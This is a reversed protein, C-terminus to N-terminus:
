GNEALMRRYEKEPVPRSYYYGQALTCGWELLKKAQYEEEVGEALIEMGLTKSLSITSKIVAEIRENGIGDIFSKDLKIADFDNAVLATHGSFGAGYDDIDVQCGLKHLSEVIDKLSISEDSLASEPIEFSLKSTDAASATLTKKIEQLMGDRRLYVRSLNISVRQTKIGDALMKNMQECVAKVMAEDLEAIHRSVELCPLFESPSLVTGDTKVWRVLAEAGVIKGTAIDYKPQYFVKFENAKLARFFDSEIASYSMRKNLVGTDYFAYQRRYDGKVTGKSLLADSVARRFTDGKELMRVGGSIDFPQINGNEIDSNFSSIVQNIKESIEQRDAGHILAVFHDALYRFLYDEPLNERFVSVIYKLLRDGNAEGYIYNFEKFKDIDFIFLAMQSKENDELKKFFVPLMNGNGIGLLPDYFVARRLERKSRVMSIITFFIAILIMLWLVGMGLSVGILITNAQEFVDSERACTMLSWDNVAMKEFHAYYREGEYLFSSDQEGVQILNPTENIYKMLKNYSSNGYQLPYVCVEGQSNLIFNYGKGEMSNFNMRETLKNSSYTAILMYRLEGDVYIPSSFVNLAIEEDPPVFSSTVQVEDGWLTDFPKKNAMNHIQGNTLYGKGSEDMVGMGHFSYYELFDDLENLILEKNEINRKSIRHSLLDLLLQRNSLARSVSAENLQSINIISNVAQNSTAGKINSYLATYIFISIGMFLALGALWMTRAGKSLAFEKKIAKEM